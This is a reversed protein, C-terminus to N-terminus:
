DFFQEVSGALTNLLTDDDLESTEPAEYIEADQMAQALERMGGGSGGSSPGVGIGARHHTYAYLADAILAAKGRGAENLIRIAERHRPNIPNFMITFKSENKKAGMM